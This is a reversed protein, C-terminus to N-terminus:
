ETQIETLEHKQLLTQYFTPDTVGETGLVVAISSNDIGLKERLHADCLISFLGALGAVGTEGLEPDNSIWQKDRLLRLTNIANIDPIKISCFVTEKLIEWAITSLEGCALGAMITELNGPYKSYQGNEISKFLCAANGPEVTIIKPFDDGYYLHLYRGLAAAAGGVGCAVIFHTPKVQQLQLIMERGIIGYGQMIQSPITEYGTRATDSIEVWGNRDIRELMELIADEYTGSVIVLEAGLDQIFNRRYQSLTEPAFIMCKAGVKQSIWALGRGHNGDTAACFTINSLVESYKGSLIDQINFHTEAFYTNKIYQLVAYTSGLAKFSKLNQDEFRMGENKIFLSKIGTLNALAPFSELPTIKYSDIKSICQYADEVGELTLTDGVNKHKLFNRNIQYSPKELKIYNFFQSHM